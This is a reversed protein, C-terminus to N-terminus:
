VVSEGLSNYIGTITPNNKSLGEIIAVKSRTVFIQTRFAMIVTDGINCEKSLGIHYDISELSPLSAGCVEYNEASTGVLAKQLHGRRYCGGGYCYALGEFNHSIESVYIISPVEESNINPTTGTLAHGPEGQTGGYKKISEMTEISTASPMNIERIDINKARFIEKSKLLTEINSTPKVKKENENFLFCPFSTIGAIDINSLDKTEEILENISNIKFGGLQGSYLVDNEGVVKILIKQVKGLNKAVENIEKIKELSYVTVFEVGYSLVKRVLSKPIQVLHGINNIPINNKMMVEAEEFDVVVAGKYGIELLKKAIYPNRGFQKTMFFIDLGNEDAKEKIKKANDLLTDLDILYTNPLILGERHYYFGAKILEANRKRISEIFM